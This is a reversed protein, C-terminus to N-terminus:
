VGPAPAVDAFADAVSGSSVRARKAWALREWVTPRACRLFAECLTPPRTTKRSSQGKRNQLTPIQNNSTSLHSHNLIHNNFNSRGCTHTDTKKTKIPQQRKLYSRNELTVSHRNRIQTAFANTM